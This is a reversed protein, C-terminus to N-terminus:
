IRANEVKLIKGGRRARPRPNLGIGQELQVQEREQDSEILPAPEQHLEPQRGEAIQELTRKRTRTYRASATSPGAHNEPLDEM